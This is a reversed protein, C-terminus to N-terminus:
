SGNTRAPQGRAIDSLAQDKNASSSSSGVWYSVVQIFAATLAGFLTNLLTIERETWTRELYFLAMIVAFYGLLVIASILVVGISKVRTSTM